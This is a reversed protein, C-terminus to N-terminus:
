LGAIRGADTVRIGDEVSVLDMDSLDKIAKYLTAPSMGMKQALEAPNKYEGKEVYELVQKESKSLNFSLKPLYIVEADEPNYAIKRVRDHRAYAGFLAGIAMTKRGSTINVYVHDTDPVLDIVEVVKTAVSVVDYAKIKVKKIEIVRGISEEILKLAKDQEPNPKENVLLVVRDAGLKTAALLVPDASYLTAILVKAMGSEGECEEMLYREM